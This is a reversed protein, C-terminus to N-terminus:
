VAQPVVQTHRRLSPKLARILAERLRIAVHPNVSCLAKFLLGCGPPIRGDLSVALSVCADANQWDLSSASVGAIAWLRSAIMGSYRGNLDAAAKRMVHYQARACKYQNLSSMSNARRYNIVTIAPDADFSIGARAIRCHMAVDENFLVDLDDDYGGAALFPARKYIGCISQVQTTITYAMPDARLAAADYIREDFKVDSEDYREEYGFLVVDPADDRQMWPRAREVFEPHLADDADHFHVWDCSSAQALTNRGTACGRNTQGRVVRAGLSAAVTATEDTSCDDYVWVEDFPVTQRHVSRLLRPLFRVANYAPVCIALTRRSM